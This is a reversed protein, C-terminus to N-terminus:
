SRHKKEQHNASDIVFPKSSMAQFYATLGPRSSPNEAVRQVRYPYVGQSKVQSIATDEDDAEIVFQRDKGTSADAGTICFKVHTGLRNAISTNRKLDRIPFPAM